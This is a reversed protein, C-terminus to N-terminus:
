PVAQAMGCRQHQPQSLALAALGLRIGVAARRVGSSKASNQLFTYDRIKLYRAQLDAEGMGAKAAILNATTVAFIVRDAYPLQQGKEDIRHYYPNRVFVYRQAPPPTTLVWPNLSPMDANDNAFM